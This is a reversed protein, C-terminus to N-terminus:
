TMELVLCARIPAKAKAPPPLAQSQVLPFAAPHIPTCPEGGPITSFPASHKPDGLTTPTLPSSCSGMQHPLFM